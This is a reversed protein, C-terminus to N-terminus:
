AGGGASRRRHFGTSSQPAPMGPADVPGLGSIVGAATLRQPIFAACALVYPGGASHGCVAFRELGLVDALACVDAPWELIRRGPQFDSGGYGPRDVTILRVGNAATLDDPPPRFIRSGPIGHFLFVPKGRPDGYEAYALHRGDWLVISSDM